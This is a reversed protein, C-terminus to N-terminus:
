AEMFDNRRQSRPRPVFTKPQDAEHLEVFGVLEALMQEKQRLIGEMRPTSATDHRVLNAVNDDRTLFSAAVILVWVAGLAAWARPHPWLLASLQPTLTALWGHHTIRSAHVSDAARKADSLIEARWVPPVSKVSQRSLRKEFQEDPNM